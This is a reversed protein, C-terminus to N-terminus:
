KESHLVWPGWRTYGTAPDAYQVDVLELCDWYRALGGGPRYRDLVVKVRMGVGRGPGYTEQCKVLQDVISHGNARLLYLNAETGTLEDHMKGWEFFRLSYHTDEAGQYTFNYYNSLTVVGWTIITKGLFKDPNAKVRVLPTEDGVCAPWIVVNSCLRMARSVPRDVSPLHWCPSPQSAAAFLPLGAARDLERWRRVQSAFALLAATALGWRILSSMAVALVVLGIACVALLRGRWDLKVWGRLSAKAFRLVAALAADLVQGPTRPQPPSPSLPPSEDRPDTPTAM